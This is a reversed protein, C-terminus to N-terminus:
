WQDVVLFTERAMPFEKFRSGKLSGSGLQFDDCFQEDLVSKPSWVRRGGDSVSLAIDIGLRCSRQAAIWGGAAEDVLSLSGIRSPRISATLRAHAAPREFPSGEWHTSPDSRFLM